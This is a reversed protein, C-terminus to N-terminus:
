KSTGGQNSVPSSALISAMQMCGNVFKLYQDERIAGTGKWLMMAFGIVQNNKDRIARAISSKAGLKAIMKGMPTPMLSLNEKFEVTEKTMLGVMFDDFWSLPLNSFAQLDALTGDASVQHTLALFMFPIRSAGIGHIGNHLSWMQGWDAHTDSMVDRLCSKIEINLSVINTVNEQVPDPLVQKIGVSLNFMTDFMKRLWRVLSLGFIVLGIILIVLLIMSLGYKEALALWQEIVTPDLPM